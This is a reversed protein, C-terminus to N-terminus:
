YSWANMKFLEVEEPQVVEDLDEVSAIVISTTDLANKLDNSAIWDSGWL